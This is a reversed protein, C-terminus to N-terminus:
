GKRSSVEIRKSSYSTEKKAPRREKGEQQWGDAWAGLGKKSPNRPLEKNTIVASRLQM